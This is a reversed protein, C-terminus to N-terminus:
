EGYVVSCPCGSVTSAARPTNVLSRPGSAAGSVICSTVFGACPASSALASPDNSYSGSAPNTPVSVKVYRAILPLQCDAGAMTVIVTRSM